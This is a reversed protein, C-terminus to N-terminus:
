GLSIKSGCRVTDHEEEDLEEVTKDSTVLKYSHREYADLLFRDFFKVRATNRANCYYTKVNFQLVITDINLDPTVKIIYPGINGGQVLNIQNADRDFDYVGGAVIQTDTLPKIIQDLFGDSVRTHNFDKDPPNYEVIGGGIRRSPQSHFHWLTYTIKGHSNEGKSLWLHVFAHQDATADVQLSFWRTAASDMLFTYTHCVDRQKDMIYFVESTTSESMDSTNLQSTLNLPHPDIHFPYSESERLLIM